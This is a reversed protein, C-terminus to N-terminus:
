LIGKEVRSVTPIRADQTDHTGEMPALFAKGMVYGAITATLGLIIAVSRALGTPDLRLFTDTMGRVVGGPLTQSVYARESALGTRADHMQVLLAKGLGEDYCRWLFYKWRTRQVSVSHQVQASPVYVWMSEPWRRTARICLETEEDGASHQLWTFSTTRTNGGKNCGFAERFGGIAVLADRRLSMNAGILNRVPTNEIPLGRYSCGVVWNFEEPFWAPRLDPWLPDIRGGVGLVDAHTYAAALHELWDQQAFADDDLFAVVTSQAAAIGSNRAGSLGKALRNEIVMVDGLQECARQLLAPNHDIVVIIEKPPITQQQVSAVAVTLDHWRSETYACIIVSITHVIQIM